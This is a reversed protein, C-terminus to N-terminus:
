KKNSIKYVGPFYEKLNLNDIRKLKCIDDFLHSVFKNNYNYLKINKRRILNKKTQDLFIFLLFNKIKNILKFYYFFIRATYKDKGENLKNLKLLTTKINESFSNGTSNKIHKFIFDQKIEIKENKISKKIVKEIEELNSVNESIDKPLLYEVDKDRYFLFNIQPVGLMFGEISTTCNCSINCISNLILSPTPLSKSAIYVNDFKKELREYTERNENPHVAIVLNISRFTKSFFEVFEIFADLNKQEHKIAKKLTNFLKEFNLKGKNLYGDREQGDIYDKIDTRKIYNVKGFKTSFLIYKKYKDKIQDSYKNLFSVHPKKLLDIRPNGAPIIKKPDANLNRQIIEKDHEGWSFHVELEDFVNKDLRRMYFDEDYFQLGEEDTGFVRHNNRKIKKVRKINKPGISKLFFDGPRLFQICNHFSSKDGVLVEFEGSECLEIANILRALLERKAQEFSLYVRRKM